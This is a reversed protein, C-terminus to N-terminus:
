DTHGSTSIFIAWINAFLQGFTTLYTKILSNHKEFHGLTQWVNPSRKFSFKYGLVKLFDGLRTMSCSIEFYNNKDYLDNDTIM